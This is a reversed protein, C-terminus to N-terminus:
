ERTPVPSVQCRAPHYGGGQTGLGLSPTQFGLQPHTVELHELIHNGSLTLNSSFITGKHIYTPPPPLSPLDFAGGVWNNKLWM